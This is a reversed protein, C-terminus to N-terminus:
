MDRTLLWKKGLHSELHFATINYHNIMNVFMATRKGGQHKPNAFLCIGNESFAPAASSHLPCTGQPSGNTKKKRVTLLWSGTSRQSVKWDGWKEQTGNPWCPGPIPEAQAETITRREPSSFDLQKSFIDEQSAPVASLALHSIQSPYHLRINKIVTRFLM